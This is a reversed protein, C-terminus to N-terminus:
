RSGPGIVTRIQAPHAEASDAIERITMDGGAEYGARRLKEVASEVDVGTEECYETLTMRGFGRGSGGAGTKDHTKGQGSQNGPGRGGPSAGADRRGAGGGARQADGQTGLALPYLQSPTMDHAEALEGVVVDPSKVTIGHGALNAIMTDLDVGESKNALERLTLLEAHVVPAQRRPTDWSHKISENWDMLSSFPRIDWVTGAFVLACVVVALIWEARFAFAKSVRDKFYSILCSWNLYIHLISGVVFVISSWDHLAIWEHKTLGLMTWGTWHAIRGPPVVFLIVGTFIMGVFSLGTLVSAFARWSFSWTTNASM